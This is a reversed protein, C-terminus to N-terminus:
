IHDGLNFTSIFDVFLTPVFRLSANTSSIEGLESKKIFADSLYATGMTNASKM